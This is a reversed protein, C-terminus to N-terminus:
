RFSRYCGDVVHDTPLTSLASVVEPFAAPQREGFHTASSTACITACSLRRLAGTGAGGEPLDRQGVGQIGQVEGGDGGGPDEVFDEHFLFPTRVHLLLLALTQGRTTHNKPVRRTSAPQGCRYLVPLAIWRSFLTTKARRAPVGRRELEIARRGTPHLRSRESQGGELEGGVPLWVM